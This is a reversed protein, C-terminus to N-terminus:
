DACLVTKIEWGALQFKELIVVFKLSNVWVTLIAIWVKISQM